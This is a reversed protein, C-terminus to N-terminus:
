YAHVRYSFPYKIKLHRPETSQPRYTCNTSQVLRMCHIHKCYSYFSSLVLTKLSLKLLLLSRGFGGVGGLCCFFGGLAVSFMGSDFCLRKYTINVSLRHLYKIFYPFSSFHPAKGWFIQLFFLQHAASFCICPM